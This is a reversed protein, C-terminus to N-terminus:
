DERGYDDSIRVVDDLETSSIEIVLASKDKTFLRHTTQCPIYYPALKAMNEERKVYGCHVDKFFYPYTELWGEGDVLFM